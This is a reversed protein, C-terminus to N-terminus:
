GAAPRELALVSIDDGLPVSNCWRKVEEISKVLGEDLPSSQNRQIIEIFGEIQLMEQRENFAEFLGDSYFYVRDGPQLEISGEEFEADPVIGIPFSSVPLQQPAEGPRVLIPPPHGANAYRLLGTESDLVGYVMTFFRSGQSAMPFQLNLNAAVEGPRRVSPTIADDAQTVLISSSPDRTTLVRSLTVSLLAAPVGHGTVDLLYIGVSRGKLPLVNLIDGGLEDCPEFYWAFEAGLGPPLDQPLLDRQMAAAADLDRKMRDNAESLAENQAALERELRIIREGANLRVRLENKDFPKALFDDAGAEMGAVLDTKESRGTLMILYSYGSPGAERIREILERGDVKPMDWDTVVIEFQSRQIEEWAAAGDEVAVVNYGWAELQRQLSRRTIREDEAVLIRM